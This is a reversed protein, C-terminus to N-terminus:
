KLSLMKHFFNGMKSIVKKLAMNQLKLKRENDVTQEVSVSNLDSPTGTTDTGTSSDDSDGSSDNSYEDDDYGDDDSSSDTETINGDSDSLVGQDISFSFQKILIKPNNFRFIIEYEMGPSRYVVRTNLFLAKYDDRSIKHLDEGSISYHIDGENKVELIEKSFNQDKFLFYFSGIPIGKCREGPFSEEKSRLFGFVEITLQKEKFHETEMIDLEKYLYGRTKKDYFRVVAGQIDMRIKRAVQYVSSHCSLALM